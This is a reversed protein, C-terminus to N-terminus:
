VGFLENRRPHDFEVGSIKMESSIVTFSLNFKEDHISFSSDIDGLWAKSFEVTQISEGVPKDDRGKFVQIIGSGKSEADAHQASAYEYLDKAPEAGPPLELNVRIEGPACNALQGGGVTEVSVDFNTVKYEAGSGLKFKIVM